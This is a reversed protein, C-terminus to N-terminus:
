AVVSMMVLGRSDSSCDGICDDGGGGKNDGDGDGSGGGVEVAGVVVM